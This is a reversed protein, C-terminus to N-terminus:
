DQPNKWDPLSKLFSENVGAVRVFHDDMKTAGILRMGWIAWTVGVVLVLVGLWALGPSEQIGAVVWLAPTGILSSALAFKARRRRERHEACLSITLTTKKQLILAAILFPFIWLILFLFAAPHIYVLKREFPAGDGPANCRVCRHPLGAGKRAVLRKGRRWLDRGNQPLEANCRRCRPEM